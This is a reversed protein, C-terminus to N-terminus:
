QEALWVFTVTVSGDENRASCDRTMGAKALVRLSAANGEAVTAIVRTKLLENAAYVLLSKVTETAYGAGWHARAFAYKIEAESQGGPHVVGCFGIVEGTSRLEIAAMGYGHDDYNRLTVGVWRVCGDRDLPEGDGVFRMAEADGYVLELADVDAITLARVRLRETEFFATLV